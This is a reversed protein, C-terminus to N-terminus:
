RLRQLAERVTVVECGRALATAVAFDLLQPTCGYRTPAPAVDHPFLGLGGNRRVTTRIARPIQARDTSRNIPTGKLMGLDISGANVGPSSGRCSAFRAQAQLKGRLSAAGYPYCFNELRLDPILRAF